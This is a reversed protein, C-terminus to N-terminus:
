SLTFFVDLTLDRSQFFALLFWDGLKAAVNRRQVAAYTLVVLSLISFDVLKTLFVGADLSFHSFYLRSILINMVLTGLSNFLYIFVKRLLYTLHVFLDVRLNWIHVRLVLSSELCYLFSIWVLIIPDLSIFDRDTRKILSQTLIHFRILVWNGVNARLDLVNLDRRLILINRDVRESVLFRRKFPVHSFIGFLATLSELIDIGLDRVQSLSRILTIFFNIIDLSQNIRESFGVRLLDCRNLLTNGRLM